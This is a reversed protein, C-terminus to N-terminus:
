RAPRVLRLACLAYVMVAVALSGAVLPARAGPTFLLRGEGVAGLGAVFAGPLMVLALLGRAARGRRATWPVLMPWGFLLAGIALNKPLELHLPELGGQAGYVGMLLHAFGAILWSCVVITVAAEVRTM